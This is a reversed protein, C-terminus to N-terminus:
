RLGAATQQHGVHSRKDCEVQNLLLRSDPNHLPSLCQGEGRHRWAPLRIFTEPFCQPTQRGKSDPRIRCEGLWAAKREGCLHQKEHHPPQSTTLCICINFKWPAAKKKEGEWHQSAPPILATPCGAKERGRVTLLGRMSIRDTCQKTDEM